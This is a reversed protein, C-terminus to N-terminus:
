KFHAVEAPASTASASADLQPPALLEVIPSPPSAAVPLLLPLAEPEPDPV